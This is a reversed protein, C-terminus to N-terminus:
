LGFLVLRGLIEANIRRDGMDVVFLELFSQEPLRLDLEGVYVVCLVDRIDAAIRRDLKQLFLDGGKVFLIGACARLDNVAVFLLTFAPTPDEQYLEQRDQKNETDEGKREAM